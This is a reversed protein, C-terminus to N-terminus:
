QMNYAKEATGRGWFRGPVSDAQYAVVPRDQMMFPNEEAKLLDEGNAIVILAEVMESYLEDDEFSLDDPNDLLKKPVLGYYRLLLVKDSQYYTLDQNPELDTDLSAEGIAVKKYVGDEM